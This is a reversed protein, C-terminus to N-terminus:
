PSVSSHHDVILWHRDVYRYALSFRAALCHVEGAPGGLRLTYGGSCLAVDGLLRIRADGMQVQPAPRSAFTREFYAAIGEPTHLLVPSTTGWLVADVHYLGLLGSLDGANFASAWRQRATEVGAVGVTDASDVRAM